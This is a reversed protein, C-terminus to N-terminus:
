FARSTSSSSLFSHFSGQVGSRLVFHSHCFSPYYPTPLFLLQFPLAFSSTGGLALKRLLFLNLRTVRKLLFFIRNSKQVSTTSIIPSPTQSLQLKTKLYELMSNFRVQFIHATQVVAHVLTLSLSHSDQTPFVRSAEGLSHIELHYSLHCLTLTDSSFNASSHPSALPHPPSEIGYNHTLHHTACWQSGHM